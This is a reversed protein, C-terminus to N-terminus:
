KKNTYKYESWVTEIFDRASRYTVDGRNIWLSKLTAFESGLSRLLDSIYVRRLDKNTAAFFKPDNLIQQKLKEKLIAIKEKRKEQEKAINEEESLIIEKLKDEPKLFPINDALIYYVVFGNFLVFYISTSFQSFDIEELKKNYKEVKKIIPACDDVIYYVDLEKMTTETIIYDEITETSTNCLITKINNNSIYSIFEEVDGFGVSNEGLMPPVLVNNCIFGKQTFFSIM